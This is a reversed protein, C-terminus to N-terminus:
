QDRRAIKDGIDPARRWRPEPRVVLRFGKLLHGYIAALMLGIRVTVRKQLTNQWSKAEDRPTRGRRRLAM